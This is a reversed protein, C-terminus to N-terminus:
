NLCPVSEDVKWKKAFEVLEPIGSEAFMEALDEGEESFYEGILEEFLEQLSSPGHTDEAGEEGRWRALWDGDQDQRIDISCEWETMGGPVSHIGLDIWSNNERENLEQIFGSFELIAYDCAEEQSRFYGIDNFENARIWYASVLRWIEIQFTDNDPAAGDISDVMEGIGPEGKNDGLLDYLDDLTEGRQFAAWKEDADKGLEKGVLERVEESALIELQFESLDIPENM